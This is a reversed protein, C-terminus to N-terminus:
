FPLDSHAVGAPAAAATKRAAAQMGGAKSGLVAGSNAAPARPADVISRETHLVIKGCAYGEKTEAADWKVQAGKILFAKASDSFVVAKVAHRPQWPAKFELPETIVPQGNADVKCNGDADIATLACHSGAGTARFAMVRGDKAPREIGTGYVNGAEDYAADFTVSLHVLRDGVTAIGSASWFQRPEGDEALMQRWNTSPVLELFISRLLVEAVVNPLSARTAGNSPSTNM